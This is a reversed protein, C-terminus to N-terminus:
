NNLIKALINRESYILHRKGNYTLDGEFTKPFVYVHDGVKFDMNPNVEPGINVVKVKMLLQSEMDQKIGKDIVLGSATEVLGGALEKDETLMEVLVRTGTVQIKM